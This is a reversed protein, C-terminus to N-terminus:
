SDDEEDMAEVMQDLVNGQVHLRAVALYSWPNRSGVSNASWCTVWTVPIQNAGAIGKHGKKEWFRWKTPPNKAQERERLTMVSLKLRELEQEALAETVWASLISWGSGMSSRYGFVLFPESM